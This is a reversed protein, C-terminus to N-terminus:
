WVMGVEKGEEIVCIREVVDGRGQFGLAAM